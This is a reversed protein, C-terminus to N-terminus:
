GRSTRTTGHSTARKVEGLFRKLKEPDKCGPNKEVGSCVDVGAPRLREIASYVNEPSLGGSLIYPRGLRAVREWDGVKGQGWSGDIVIEWDDFLDANEPGVAVWTRRANAPLCRPDSVGHFQLVETPAESWGDIGVLIGVTLFTGRDFRRSLESIMEAAQRPAIYRPSSPWFNFGLANAGLELSLAGDEVSTIGCIKVIV